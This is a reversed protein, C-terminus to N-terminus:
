VGWRMLRTPTTRLGAWLRGNLYRNHSMESTWDAALPRGRSQQAAIQVTRGPQGSLEGDASGVRSSYMYVRCFKTNAIMSNKDYWGGGRFWFMNEGSWSVNEVGGELGIGITSWLTRSWGDRERRLLRGEFRLICCDRDSQLGSMTTSWPWDGSALVMLCGVDFPDTEVAFLPEVGRVAIGSVLPRGVVFPVVVFPVVAFPVAM